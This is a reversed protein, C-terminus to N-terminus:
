SIVVNLLRLPQLDLGVIKAAFAFLVHFLPATASNSDRLDPFPLEAYYREIIPYHSTVEDTDHFTPFPTAMWNFLMVVVLFPAVIVLATVWRRDTPPRTAELRSM